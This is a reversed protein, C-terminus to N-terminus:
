YAPQYHEIAGENKEIRNLSEGYVKIKGNEIGVRREGCCCSGIAEYVLAVKLLHRTM